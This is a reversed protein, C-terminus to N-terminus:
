RRRLVAASLTTLVLGVSLPELLTLAVNSWPNEYLAMFREARDATERLEAPTAGSRRAREVMCEGYVQGIGPHLRYYLLQFAAVYLAGSVLTIGLGVLFGRRFTMKGQGASQRYSRVGFFIILGMLVMSSYGILDATGLEKSLVFPTAAFMLASTLVGSILGYVLVTKKMTM